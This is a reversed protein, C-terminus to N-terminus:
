RSTAAVVTDMVMSAVDTARRCLDPVSLQPGVPRLVAQVRLSRHDAADVAVQCVLGGGVSAPVNVVAGFGNIQAVRADPATAAGEAPLPIVQVNYNVIPRDQNGGMPDTGIWGCGPSPVGDVMEVSSDNIRRLGLDAVQGESLMRCPDTHDLPVESPRVPFADRAAAEPTRPSSDTCGVLLATMAVAVAVM